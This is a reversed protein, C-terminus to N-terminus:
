LLHFAAATAACAIVAALVPAVWNSKRQEPVSASLPMVAATAARAPRQSPEVLADLTRAVEEMSSPRHAPDKAMM